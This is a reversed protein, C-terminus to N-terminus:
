TFPAVPRVLQTHHDAHLAQMLEAVVAPKVRLSAPQAHPIALLPERATRLHSLKWDHAADELISQAHFVEGTSDRCFCM